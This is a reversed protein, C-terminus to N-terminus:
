VPIVMLLLATETDTDPQEQGPWYSSPGLTSLSTNEPSQATGLKSCM